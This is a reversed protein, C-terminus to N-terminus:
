TIGLYGELWLWGKLLSGSGFVCGELAVGRGFTSVNGNTQGGNNAQVFFIRGKSKNKTHSGAIEAVLLLM